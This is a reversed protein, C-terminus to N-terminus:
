KVGGAPVKAKLEEFWNQILNIHTVVPPPPLPAVSKPVYFRQGDPALDYCRPSCPFYLDLSNFEFLRRTAGVRVARTVDMDVVNMSWATPTPGSGGNVFFLERGNPNWATSMGGDLTVQTRPGPGPFPRM